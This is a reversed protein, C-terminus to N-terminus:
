IWARIVYRGEVEGIYQVVDYGGGVASSSAIASLVRELDRHDRSTAKAGVNDLKVIRMRPTARGTTTKGTCAPWRIRIISTSRATELAM